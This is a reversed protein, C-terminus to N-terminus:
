TVYHMALANRSNRRHKEEGQVKMVVDESNIQTNKLTRCSVEFIAQDTVQNWGM